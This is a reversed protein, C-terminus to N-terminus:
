TCSVPGTSGPPGPPQPGGGWTELFWYQGGRSPGGFNELDTLSPGELFNYRRGARILVVKTLCGTYTYKYTYLQHRDFNCLIEECNVDTCHYYSITKYFLVSKEKRFRKFLGIKEHM